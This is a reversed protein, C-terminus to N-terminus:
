VAWRFAISLVSFVEKLHLIGSFVGTWSRRKFLVHRTNTKLRVFGAGDLATQHITESRM